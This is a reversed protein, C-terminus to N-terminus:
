NSMYIIRFIMCLRCQGNYLRSYEGFTISTTILLILVRDHIKKVHKRTSAALASLYWCIGNAFEDCTEHINSTTLADSADAPMSLSNM